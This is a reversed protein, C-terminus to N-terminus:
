VKELLPQLQKIAHSRYEQVANLPIGLQEAVDKTTMKNYFLLQFVESCQGTLKYIGNYLALLTEITVLGPNGAKDAQLLDALYLMEKRSPKDMDVCRLFDYCNNRITVLLFTKVDEATKFHQRMAILKIFTNVVMETAEEQDNILQNAYSVMPAYHEQLLIRLAQPENRHFAPILNNDFIVAMTCSNLSTNLVM